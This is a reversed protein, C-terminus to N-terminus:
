LLFIDSLQLWFLWDAMWLKGNYTRILLEYWVWLCNFPISSWVIRSFFRVCYHDKINVVTGQDIAHNLNLPLPPFNLFLIHPEVGWHSGWHNPLWKCVSHFSWLDFDDFVIIIWLVSGLQATLLLLFIQTLDLKWRLSWACLFMLTLESGSMRPLRPDKWSLRDSLMAAMRPNWVHCPESEPSRSRRLHLCALWSNSFTCKSYGSSYVSFIVLASKYPFDTRDISQAKLGLDWRLYTILIGIWTQLGAVSSM